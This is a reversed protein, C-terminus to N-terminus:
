LWLRATAGFRERHSSPYRIEVELEESSEVFCTEYRTAKDLGPITAAHVFFAQGSPAEQVADLCRVARVCGPVNCGARSKKLLQGDSGDDSDSDESQLGFRPSASQTRSSRASRSFSLQRVGNSAQVNIGHGKLKSTSRAKSIGPSFDTHGEPAEVSQRKIELPRKRKSTAKLLSTFM